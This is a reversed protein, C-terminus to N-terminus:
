PYKPGPLLYLGLSSKIPMKLPSVEWIPYDTHGLYQKMKMAWIDYEGKKLIPLKITSLTHPAQQTPPVPPPINANEDHNEDERSVTSVRSGTSVSTSATSFSRDLAVDAELDDRITLTRTAGGGNVMTSLGLAIKWALARNYCAHM